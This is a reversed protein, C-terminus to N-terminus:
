AAFVVDADVSGASAGKTLRMTAVRLSSTRAVDDLWRVIADYSAGSVTVRLRGAAAPQTAATVGFQAASATVIAEPAGSRQAPAGIAPGAARIRADLTDYTRIRSLADARAAQLPQVVLVILLAVAAVAALGALLQQERRSRAGWWTAFRSRYPDLRPGLAAAIRM